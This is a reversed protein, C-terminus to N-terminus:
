SLDMQSLTSVQFHPMDYSLTMIDYTNIVDVIGPLRYLHRWHQDNWRDTPLLQRVKTSEITDDDNVITEMALRIQVMM